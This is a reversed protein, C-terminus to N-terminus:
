IRSVNAFYTSGSDTDHDFILWFICCVSLVMQILEGDLESAPSCKNDIQLRKHNVNTRIRNLNTASLETEDKYPSFKIEVNLNLVPNLNMTNSEAYTTYNLNRDELLHNEIRLLRSEYDKLIAPRPINLSDEM